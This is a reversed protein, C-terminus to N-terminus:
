VVEVKEDALEVEVVQLERGSLLQVDYSHCSPCVFAYDEVRFGNGCAKCKAMVPVFEIELTAGEMPTGSILATFCFELSDVVVGAMEGVKMRVCKVAPASEPPLSQQVIELISQAISLEHM